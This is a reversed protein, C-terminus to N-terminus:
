GFPVRLTLSVSRGMDRIGDPKLLSLHNIYKANGLNNGHLGVQVTQRALPLRANVSADILVYAKSSAEWFPVRDQKLYADASLSASLNRFPGNAGGALDLGTLVHHAPIMPAWLSAEDRLQALVLDLRSYLKMAPLAAPHLAVEAHGGWFDADDQRYAFVPFVQDGSPRTETVTAGTAYLYTYNFIRNAFAGLSFTVSELRWTSAVDFELNQEAVLEDNGILFRRVERLLGNATLAALSPASAGVGANVKLNWGPRVEYAVGISGSGMGFSRELDSDVLAATKLLFEEEEGEAPSTTLRQADYRLGGEITARDTKKRLLAYVGNQNLDANPVFPEMGKSENKQVQGQLGVKLLWDNELAREYGFRYHFTTLVLDVAKEKEEPGATVPEFEQQQNIQVGLVTNLWGSGVRTQTDSSLIHDFLAHYPAEIKRHNEERGMEEEEAEVIGNLHQLYHYTLRTSGWNRSLGAFVKAQTHRFRSNPVIKDNEGEPEPPRVAGPELEREGGALYDAHADYSARAGWFWGNQSQRVSLENYLGSTNAYLGATYAGVTRGVPAPYEPVFTIVGGMAGPGYQLTAPGQIVDVQETSNGNESLGMEPDWTQYTYPMNEVMLLIRGGSLGRIFPREIGPGNTSRAIGPLRDLAQWVSLAGYESAEAQDISLTTLPVDDQNQPDDAIVVVEEGAVTQPQLDIDVRASAGAALTVTRTQKLYGLRSFQVTYTGPALGEIAYRSRSDTVTGRKLSAIYVHVDAQAAGGTTATGEISQANLVAPFSALLFGLVSWRRKLRLISM